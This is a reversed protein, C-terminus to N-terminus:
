LSATIKLLQDNYLLSDSQVNYWIGGSVWTANSDGYLYITKGKQEYTQYEHNNAALFNDALAQSNWSSKKETFAINNGDSNSTLNFTVFGEGYQIPGSLAFGSPSYGPLTADIGARSSAIEMSIKSLNQYTFFGVLLLLALAAAGINVTKKSVGLRKGIRSSKKKKKTLKQEHAKSESLAKNFHEESSKAEHEDESRLVKSDLQTFNKSAEGKETAIELPQYKVEHGAASFKGIHPSKKVSSARDLRSRKVKATDVRSPKEPEPKKVASRMLSHSKQPQHHKVSSGSKHPHNAKHHAKPSKQHKVVGDISSGASHSKDAKITEGTKADYRRGNIEIVGQHKAM